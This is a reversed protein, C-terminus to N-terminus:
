IVKKNNMHLKGNKVDASANVEFGKDSQKNILYCGIGAVGLIGIVPLAASALAMRGAQLATQRAVYQGGIMGVAGIAAKVVGPTLWAAGGKAAAAAAFGVVPIM